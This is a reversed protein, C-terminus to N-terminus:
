RDTGQKKGWQRAATYGLYGTGFLTYLPSPIGGLYANIGSAIAAAMQPQFAALVGVPLACLIMMYMVYLFCPRARSIWPDPTPAVLAALSTHLRQLDPTGHLALLQRKVADRQALDPIIRDILEDLPPLLADSLAMQIGKPNHM